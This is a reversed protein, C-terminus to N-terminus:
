QGCRVLMQNFNDGLMKYHYPKKNTQKKNTKSCPIGNTMVIFSASLHILLLSLTLKRSSLTSVDPFSPLRRM